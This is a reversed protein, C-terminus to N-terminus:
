DSNYYKWSRQPNMDSTLYQKGQENNRNVAIDLIRRRAEDYFAESVAQEKFDDAIPLPYGARCSTEFLEHSLSQFLEALQDESMTGDMFQEIARDMRGSIDAWADHMKTSGELSGCTFKSKIEKMQDEKTIVKPHGTWLDKNALCEKDIEAEKVPVRTLTWTGYPNTYQIDGTPLFELSGLM